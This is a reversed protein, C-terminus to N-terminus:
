MPEVAVLHMATPDYAVTITLSVLGESDQLPPQISANVNFDSCARASDSTYVITHNVPNKPSPTGATGAIFTYADADFFGASIAFVPDPSIIRHEGPTIGPDIASFRSGNIVKSPALASLPTGDLTARSLDATPCIIPVSHEFEYSPTNWLLTDTYYATDLVSVLSPDGNLSDSFSYSRTLQQAEVPIPGVGNFTHVEIPGFFTTSLRGHFSNLVNGNIRASFDQSSTLVLTGGSDYRDIPQTYFHSGWWKKGILEDMLENCAEVQLPNYACTLGDVISVPKSAHIVSGSLSPDFPLDIIDAKVIYCEGRNLMITFPVSDPQNLETKVSPVITVSTSDQSATVIFETSNHEEVDDWIGWGFAVYSTDLAPDPLIQSADGGFQVYDHLVLNVPATTHVLLGKETKGLDNIHILNTPLTIVTPVLPQFSFEATYGSPSSIVGCGSYASVVTLTLSTGQLYVLSDAFSYPGEIIGFTFNQGARPLQAQALLADSGVFSIALLVLLLLPDRLSQFM